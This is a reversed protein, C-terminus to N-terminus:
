MAYQYANFQGLYGNLSASVDIGRKIKRNFSAITKSAILRLVKGTKTLIYRCKCFVFGNELKYIHTKNESLEIGLLLLAAKLYM